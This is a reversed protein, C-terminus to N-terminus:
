LNILPIIENVFLYSNAPITNGYDYQIEISGQQQNGLDLSPNFQVSVTNLGCHCVSVVPGAYPAGFDVDCIKVKSVDIDALSKAAGYIRVNDEGRFVNLDSIDWNSNSILNIKRGRCLGNGNLLSLVNEALVTYGETTPHINDNGILNSYGMLCKINDYLTVVNCFSSAIQCINKFVVEDAYVLGPASWCPLIVIQANTFMAHLKIQLAKSASAHDASKNFNMDNIGGIVFIYKVKTHDYSTDAIAVDAQSDFTNGAITYGAGAVGYNHLNLKLGNAIMDSMNPSAIAGGSLYGISFSDGLVIMETMIKDTLPEIADVRSTLASDKCFIKHGLISIGDFFKM